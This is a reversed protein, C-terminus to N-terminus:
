AAANMSYHSKRLVRHNNSPYLCGSHLAKSVWPLAPYNAQTNTSGESEGVEGWVFITCACVRVYCANTTELRNVIGLGLLTIFISFPTIM